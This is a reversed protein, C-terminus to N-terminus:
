NHSDWLSRQIWKVTLVHVKWSIQLMPQHYFVRHLKPAVIQVGLEHRKVDDADKRGVDSVEEETLRQLTVFSHGTGDDESEIADKPDVSHDLKEVLCLGPGVKGVREPDGLDDEVNEQQYVPVGAEEEREGESDAELGVAPDILSRRLERRLVDVTEVPRRERQCRNSFSRLWDLIQLIEEDGHVEEDAHQNEGGDDAVNAGHDRIHICRPRFELVLHVSDLLVHGKSFNTSIKLVADYFPEVVEPVVLLRHVLLGDEAHQRVLQFRLDGNVDM